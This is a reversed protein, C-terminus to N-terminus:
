LDHFGRNLRALARDLLDPIEAIETAPTGLHVSMTVGVIAGALARIDLDDTGRGPAAANAALISVLELTSSVLNNVQAARLEPVTMMLETRRYQDALEAASLQAFGDRMARRFRDVLTTGAPQNRLSEVINSDFNDWLVVDPKTAFYRFYTREAIGVAAAIEAVTTKEYGREGFLRLAEAQIRRKTDAKKAARRGPPVSTPDASVLRM